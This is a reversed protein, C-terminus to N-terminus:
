SEHRKSVPNLRILNRNINDFVTLQRYIAVTKNAVIQSPIHFISAFLFLAYYPIETRNVAM